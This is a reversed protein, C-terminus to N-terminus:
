QKPIKAAEIVKRWKSIEAAFFERFAEPTTAWSDAGLERFRTRTDPANVADTIAKNLATIIARPTRAPAAVGNWSTVAYGPVGSEAVTPVDPLGAYRAAPSVALARLGGSRIQGIVPATIEFAVQVNNSRLATQVAGSNTFPVNLVDIGAMSKFLEASLHQTSGIQITGVTLKGPAARAQAILDKVSRLKSDPSVLVVVSFTSITSIPAFDRYADYPLKNFLSQSIGHSNNLLLLTYGDPEARAVLETAVIGGASPRNDVIVQQGLTASMKQAVVRATIDGVGGPGFPVLFRVPRTPFPQAGASASTVVLALAFAAATGLRFAFPSLRFSEIRRRLYFGWATVEAKRRGVKAKMNTVM